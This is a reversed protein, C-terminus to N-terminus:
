NIKNSNAILNSLGEELSIKPAWNLISKAKSIDASINSIENNDKEHYIIEASEGTEELLINLVKELSQEEGSGINFIELNQNNLQLSKTVASTVDAIYIFDRKIDKKITIKKESLGNLLSPIIFSSYQGEGYVNFLRLITGAVGSEIFLKECEVKSKGYDNLPKLESDETIPTDKPNGYVACSSIFILRSNNDKCYALINKMMEEDKKFNNIGKQPLQSALHIVINCKPLNNIQKKDSLDMKDIPPVEFYEIGELNLQKKLHTGIFGFSGTILVKLKSKDLSLNSSELFPCYDPVIEKLKKILQELNSNDAFIRLESIERILKDKNVKESNGIFIREHRTAEINEKNSWLEEYLKEGPRLDTYIIEIDQNPVLGHLRILNEAVEKINYQKGMDLILIEKDKGIAGAQIILQAAEPITMFYRKIEPHTVTIPGGTAIQEEFLPIVSGASGLVNGFRVTVFKTNKDFLQLILECIRKTCGMLSTPNVAKDTSVLVFKSVNYKEAMTATNYTGFINNKVAEQANAEMLPVHKYAAAHFILDIYNNKFVRELFNIDKVDGIITEIKTFGPRSVLERDINYLNFECSDIIILKKPSLQLIQRCLEKGISGGGGTVLITKGLINERLEEANVSVPDRRLLDELNVPRLKSIWPRGTKLSYLGEYAPPLIQTKIKAKECLSIIQKLREEKLSPIAIIVEAIKQEHSVELLNEIKGLIPKNSFKGTKFDDLFGVVEYKKLFRRNIEKLLLKSALGTGIILVRTKDM